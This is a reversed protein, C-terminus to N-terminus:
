VAAKPKVKHRDSPAIVLGYNKVIRGADNSIWHKLFTKKPITKIPHKAGADTPYYSDVLYYNKEDYGVMVAFHSAKKEKVEKPPYAEIYDQYLVIIMRNKSLEREPLTGKQLKKVPVKCKLLVSELSQISTGTKPNAKMEKALDMEAPIDKGMIRFINQITAQGCTFDTDQELLEM